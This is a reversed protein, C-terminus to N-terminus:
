NVSPEATAELYRLRASIIEEQVDLIQLRARLKAVTREERRVQATLVWLQVRIVLRSIFKSMVM